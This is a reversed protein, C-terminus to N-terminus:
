FDDVALLEILLGGLREIVLDPFGAALQGSVNIRQEIQKLSRLGPLDM